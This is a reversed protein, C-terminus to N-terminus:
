EKFLTECLDFGGEPSVPAYEGKLITIEAAGQWIIVGLNINKQNLLDNFEDDKFFTIKIEVVQGPQLMDPNATLRQGGDREYIRTRNYVDVLTGNSMCISKVVAVGLGANYNRDWITSIALTKDMYDPFSRSPSLSNFSAVALMVVIAIATLSLINMRWRSMVFLAGFLTSAYFLLGSFSSILMLDVPWGYISMFFLIMTVVAFGILCFLALDGYIRAKDKTFIKKM